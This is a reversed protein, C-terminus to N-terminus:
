GGDARLRLDESAPEREVLVELPLANQAYPTWGDGNGNASGLGRYSSLVGAALRLRTAAPSGGESGRLGGFQWQRALLWAPDGVRAAAGEALDQAHTQPELRTWTTASAANPDTAM